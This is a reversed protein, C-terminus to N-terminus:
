HSSLLGRLAEIFGLPQDIMLHHDADPLEVVSTGQPSYIQINAKVKDDILKSAEGNIWVVPCKSQRLSSHREPL